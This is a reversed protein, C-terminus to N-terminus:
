STVMPRAQDIVQVLFGAKLIKKTGTWDKSEWFWSSATKINKNFNPSKRTDLETQNRDDMLNKCSVAASIFAM